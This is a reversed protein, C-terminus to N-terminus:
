ELLIDDDYEEDIVLLEDVLMDDEDDEDEIDVYELEDIEEIVDVRQIEVMEEPELEDDLLREIHEQDLILRVELRVDVELLEM